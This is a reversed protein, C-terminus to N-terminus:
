EDDDDDADVRAAAEVSAAEEAAALVAAAKRKSRHDLMRQDMRLTLYRLVNDNIDLARELKAIVEGDSEFTMNVYYGNRKKEIPYALRQSGWVNKDVVKGGHEDIFKDVRNVLDKLQDDNLVANLIYTLEYTNPPLPVPVASKRAVAGATTTDDAM